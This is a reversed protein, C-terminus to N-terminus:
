EVYRLRVTTVTDNFLWVSRSINVLSYGSTGSQTSLSISLL